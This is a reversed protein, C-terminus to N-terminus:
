PNLTWAVDWPAKQHYIRGEHGPVPKAVSLGPSRANTESKSSFVVNPRGPREM